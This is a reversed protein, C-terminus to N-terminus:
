KLDNILKYIYEKKENLTMGKIENKFDERKKERWDKYDKAYERFAWKFRTGNIIANIRQDKQKIYM